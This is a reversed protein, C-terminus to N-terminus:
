APRARNPSNGKPTGWCAPGKPAISDTDNAYRTVLNSNGFASIGVRPSRQLWAPDGVEGSRGGGAGFGM